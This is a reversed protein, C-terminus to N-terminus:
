KCIPSTSASVLLCSCDFDLKKLLDNGSSPHSPPHTHSQRHTAVPNQLQSATM